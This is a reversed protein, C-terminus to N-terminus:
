GVQAEERRSRFLTAGMWSPRKFRPMPAMEPSLHPLHWELFWQAMVCDDTRGEPYQTVEKVLQLHKWPEGSRRNPLRVRGYRWQSAITQVGFSPDLKRSTTQHPIITVGWKGKWRRVHDYQLLFRQAANAEVIWSTIPRNLEVSRAQWDEMLGFFRGETQNWDLFDPADMSRREMDMFYREYPMGDWGFRVVWWQVSWFKTPSPDATAVSLLHGTLGAPLECPAREKDYCGPCDEGTEPDVGGSVWIPKVLVNAPDIDEQQYIVLFKSSRNAMESRLDSWPVRRPDLLCGRPYYPANVGHHEVCRDEYHAKFVIHFYKRDTEDEDGELGAKKDLAYRYLDDGSLRQGQLIMLGRPDLRKEAVDDWWTQQNERAEVTRLTLNDVVDDWVVFDYRLGLFGSDMGFASWTPEKEAILQNGHQAVV